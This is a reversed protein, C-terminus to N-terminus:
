KIIIEDDNFAFNDLGILNSINNFKERPIRHLSPIATKISPFVESYEGINFKKVIDMLDSHPPDVMVMSLDEYVIDCYMYVVHNGVSIMPKFKKPILKFTGKIDVMLLNYNSFPRSENITFTYNKLFNLPRKFNVEANKAFENAEERTDFIKMGNKKLLYEIIIFCLPTNKLLCM